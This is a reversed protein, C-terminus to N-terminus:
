IFKVLIMGAFKKDKYFEVRFISGNKEVSYKKDLNATDIKQETEKEKDWLSYFLLVKGKFDVVKEIMAKKPLDEYEKRAVEAMKDADFVQLIIVEGEIKVGLVSKGHSFYLKTAADVVRFPKSIQVDVQTFGKISVLLFLALLLKKM